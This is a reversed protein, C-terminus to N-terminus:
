HRSMEVIAMAFDRDDMEARPIRREGTPLFARGLRQLLARVPPIFRM